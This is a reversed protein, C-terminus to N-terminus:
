SGAICPGSYNSTTNGKMTGKINMGYYGGWFGIRIMLAGINHPRSMDLSSHLVAPPKGLLDKSSRSPRLRGHLGPTSETNASVRLVRSASFASGFALVDKPTWTVLRLHRSDVQRGQM